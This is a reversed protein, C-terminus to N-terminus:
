MCCVRVKMRTTEVTATVANTNAASAFSALSAVSQAAIFQVKANNLPLTATWTLNNNVTEPILWDGAAFTQATQWSDTSTARTRRQVIADTFGYCVAEGVAGVALSAAGSTSINYTTPNVKAIGLILGQSNTTSGAADNMTMAAVGLSSLDATPPTTAAKTSLANYSIAAVVQGDLITLSANVNQIAVTIQEKELYQINSFRM